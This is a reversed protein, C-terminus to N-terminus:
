LGGGMLGVCLPCLRPAACWPKIPTFTRQMGEAPESTLRFTSSREAVGTSGGHSGAGQAVRHGERGQMGM